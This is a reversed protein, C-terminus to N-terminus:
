SVKSGIGKQEAKKLLTAAVIIDEMAAGVSKFVTIEEDNRRGPVKGTVLDGLGGSIPNGKLTGNSLPILIDGAEKMAEEPIDAFIRSRKMTADDLERVDPKFSGIAVIHTGAKLKNGDFVPTTATTATVIIHSENVLADPSDAVRYSPQSRASTLERCMEKAKEKNSDFVLVTKLSRVAQIALIHHKAQIGAGFVGLVSSDKRSLLDTALASVAATRLATIFGGDLIAKVLGTQDDVMFVKSTVTPVATNQNTPFISVLKIGLGGASPVFAPMFLISNGKEGVHIASREPMVVRGHAFELFVEKMLSIAEEWSIIPELNERNLILM